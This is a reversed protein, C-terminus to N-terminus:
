NNKTIPLTPASVDIVDANRAQKSGLLVGLVQAKLKSDEASGWEVRPGDVLTFQVSDETSASVSKVRDSLVTPLSAMVALAATLVKPKDTPVALTPLGKPAQAARGVQIGEDDILTFGGAVDPVAAVPERSELTVVLGDPWHRAVHAERVGPIDKLQSALHSMSLTALSHGEQEDVAARVAKPDVVTGYGSVEVKGPDLAFVPSLLVLWVAAALVVVYGCRRGWVIARRRRTAKRREADREDKRQAIPPAVTSKARALVAQLASATSKAADTLATEARRQPETLAAQSEQAPKPSSDAGGVRTWQPASPPRTPTSM